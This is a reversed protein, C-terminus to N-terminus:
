KEKLQAKPQNELDGVADVSLMRLLARRYSFKHSEVFLENYRLFLVLYVINKIFSSYSSKHMASYQVTLSM